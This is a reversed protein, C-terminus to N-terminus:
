ALFFFSSFIKKGSILYVAPDVNFELKHYIIDYNQTDPNSVFSMLNSALKMESTAITSLKDQQQAFSFAISFLFLVFYTKKM